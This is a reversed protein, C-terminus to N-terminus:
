PRRLWGVLVDRNAFAECAEHVVAESRFVVLAGATPRIKIAPPTNIEVAIGAARQQQQDVPIPQYLSLAGGESESLDNLFLVFSFARRTVEEGHEDGQPTDLHGM